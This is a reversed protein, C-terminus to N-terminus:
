NSKRTNTVMNWICIHTELTKIQDCSLFWIMFWSLNSVFFFFRFRHDNCWSWQCSIQWIRFVLVITWNDNPLRVFAIISVIKWFWAILKPSWSSAWWWWKLRIRQAISLIKQLFPWVIVARDSPSDTVTFDMVM